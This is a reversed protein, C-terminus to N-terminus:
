CYLFMWLSIVAFSIQAGKYGFQPIKHWVKNQILQLGLAYDPIRVCYLFTNSCRSVMWLWMITNEMKSSVVYM